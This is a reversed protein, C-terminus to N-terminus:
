SHVEAIILFCKIKESDPFSISGPAPHRRIGEMVNFSMQLSQLRDSLSAKEDLARIERRREEANIPPEPVCTQQEESAFESAM